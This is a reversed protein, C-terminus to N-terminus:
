HKAHRHHHRKQSAKSSKLADCGRPPPLGRASAVDCHALRALERTVHKPVHGHNALYMANKRSLRRQRTDRYALVGAFIVGLSVIGIIGWVPNIKSLLTKSSNADDNVKALNPNAQLAAATGQIACITQLSTRQTLIQLTDCEIGELDMTVNSFRSAATNANGCQASLSDYVTKNINTTNKHVTEGFLTVSGGGDNNSQANFAAAVQSSLNDAVSKISADAACSFQASISQVFPKVTTCKVNKITLNVKSIDAVVTNGVNCKEKVKQVTNETIRVIDSTKNEGFASFSGGM